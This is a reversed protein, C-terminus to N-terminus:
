VHALCPIGTFRMQGSQIEVVAFSVCTTAPRICQFEHERPAFIELVFIEGVVLTANDSGFCFPNWCESSGTEGRV